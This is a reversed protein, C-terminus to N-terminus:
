AVGGDYDFSECDCEGCKDTSVWEGHDDYHGHEDKWHGCSCIV